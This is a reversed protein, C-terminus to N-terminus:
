VLSLVVIAAGDTVAIDRFGDGDYDGIAVATVAIPSDLWTMCRALEVSDGVIEADGGFVIVLGDPGGLVLDSRGDVDLDAAAGFPLEGAINWHSPYWEGEAGWWASARTAGPEIDIAIVDDLLDGDLDSAYLRREPLAPSSGPLVRYAVLDSPATALYIQEVQYGIAGIGSSEDRVAVLAPTAYDFPEAAGFSEGDPHRVILGESEAVFLDLSGNGDYDALALATADNVEIADVEGFTDGADPGLQPYVRLYDGTGRLTSQIMVVDSDGDPEIDGVAFASAGFPSFSEIDGVDEGPYRSLLVGYAYSYLLADSTEGAIRIFALAHVIPEGIDITTTRLVQPALACLELEPVEAPLDPPPEDPPDGTVDSPPDDPPDPDHDDDDSGSGGGEAGGEDPALVRPGCAAAVLAACLLQQRRSM